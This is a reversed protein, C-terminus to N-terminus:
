SRKPGSPPCGNAPVFRYGIGWETQVYRPHEADDGPKQCLWRVFVKPSNRDGAWESGWIRELPLRHPLTTGANRALEDLLRYETSTLRLLEGAVKM